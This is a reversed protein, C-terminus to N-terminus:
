FSPDRYARRYGITFGCSGRMPSGQPIWRGNKRLTLVMRHGDPNSTYTYDQSGYYESKDTAKYMDSTVVIKKQNIVEVVTYPYCDSGVCYTAGMGVVVIEVRGENLSRM